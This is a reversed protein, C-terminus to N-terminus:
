CEFIDKDEKNFNSKIFKRLSVATFKKAIACDQDFWPKTRRLVQKKPLSKKIDSYLAVEEIASSLIQFKEEIGPAKEFDNAETAAGFKVPNSALDIQLNGSLKMSIPGATESGVHFM